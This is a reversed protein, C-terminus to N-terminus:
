IINPLMQYSHAIEAPSYAGVLQLVWRRGRERSWFRGGCLGRGGALTRRDGGGGEAEVEAHVEVHAVRQQQARRAGAVEVVQLQAGVQEGRGVREALLLAEHQGREGEDGVEAGVVRVGVGVAVEVGGAVKGVPYAASGGIRVLVSIQASCPYNLLIRITVHIINFFESFLM